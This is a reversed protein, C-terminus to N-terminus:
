SYLSYYSCYEALFPRARGTLHGLNTSVWFYPMWDTVQITMIAEHESVRWDVCPIFKLEALKGIDLDELVNFVATVPCNTM